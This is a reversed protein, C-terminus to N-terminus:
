ASSDLTFAPCSTAPRRPARPQLTGVHESALPGCHGLQSRGPEVM